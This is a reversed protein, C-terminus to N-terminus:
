ESREVPIATIDNTGLILLDNRLVDVDHKTTTATFRIQDGANQLLPNFDPLSVKGTSYDITGVKRQVVMSGVILNMFGTGDDQLRAVTADTRTWEGTAVSGAVIENNFAITYSSPGTVPTIEKSITLTTYNNIISRNVDDIVAMLKSYKFSQNYDFVATDFHDEIAEQVATEIESAKLTTRDKNYNITVNFNCEIFEPDVLQPVIGVVNFKALIDTEISKRTAPSVVDGTVPKVSVFVKGYEPPDADEGGWANIAAINPFERLIIAKYDDITVVRNQRQYDLPANHKISDLGERDAGDSAVTENSVTFLTRAYSGIGSDVTFGSLNNGAAGLTTIYEATVFNGSELAKGITNNGFYIEVLENEVESIFYAETEPGVNVLNNEQEWVNKETDYEGNPQVTVQIFDTDIDPQTMIFRQTDTADKSWAQQGFSGQVVFVTGVLIETAPQGASIGTDILTNDDFTVFNVSSGDEAVASFNTGKPVTFSTPITGSHATLNLSLTFNARAGKPSSPVYGIAKAGAVVNKRVIASLMDSETLAMNSYVGTYHIGYAMVDLLTAMASGEFDYDQFESQTALFDKFNQKITDFDLESVNLTTM